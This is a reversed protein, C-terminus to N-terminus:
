PAVALVLSVRSCGDCAVPEYKETRIRKEIHGCHQCRIRQDDDIWRYPRIGLPLHHGQRQAEYLWRQEYADLMPRTHQALNPYEDRARKAATAPSIPFLQEDSM